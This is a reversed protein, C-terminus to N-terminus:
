ACDREGADGAADAVTPPEAREARYKDYDERWPGCYPPAVVAEGEPAPAAGLLWLAHVRRYRGWRDYYFGNGDQDVHIYCRTWYHKYVELRRGDDLEVAYMWVFDARAQNTLEQLPTWNPEESDCVEGAHTPKKEM